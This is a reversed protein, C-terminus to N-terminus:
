KSLHKQPLASVAGLAAVDFRKTSRWLRLVSQVLIGYRQMSPKRGQGDTGRGIGSPCTPYKFLQKRNANRFDRLLSRALPQFTLPPAPAERVYKQDVLTRLLIEAERSTLRESEKPRLLLRVVRLAGVFVHDHRQSRELSEIKELVEKKLAGDQHFSTVTKYNVKARRTAHFKRVSGRGEALWVLLELFVAGMAWIDFSRRIRKNVREPGAYEEFIVPMEIGSFSSYQQLEDRPKFQTLGLDTLKFTSLADKDVLINGPKIDCHYGHGGEVGTHIHNLASFLGAMQEVIRVSTNNPASPDSDAMLTMLSTQAIPYLAIHKRGHSLSALMPVINPHQFRKNNQTETTFDDECDSEGSDYEGDSDYDDRSKQSGNSSSATFFKAAVCGNRANLKHYGDLLEAEYVESYGGHGLQGKLNMPLVQSVEAVFVGDADAARLAPISPLLFEYQRLYHFAECFHKDPRIHFQKTAETMLHQLERKELPQALVSDDTHKNETFIHILCLRGMELLIALILRYGSFITDVDQETAPDLKGRCYERGCPCHLLSRINEKTLIKYVETKPFIRKASKTPSNRIHRQVNHIQSKFNFCPYDEKNIVDEKDSSKPCARNFKADFQEIAEKTRELATAMAFSDTPENAREISQQTSSPISQLISQRIRSM